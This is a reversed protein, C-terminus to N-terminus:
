EHCVAAADKIAFTSLWYHLSATGFPEILVSVRKLFNTDYFLNEM